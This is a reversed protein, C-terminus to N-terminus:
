RKLIFVPQRLIGERTWEQFAVECVLKPRLWTTSKQGPPISPFPCKQTILPQMLKYLTELAQQDFGAGVNGAYTLVNNEDYVGIVLSGFYTRRGKPNTYGCIVFEQRQIAKIKLWNRSRISVYPSNKDKAIMGELQQKQIEKFFAVGHEEVHDSYVLHPLTKKSLINRLLEKRDKLPEKRLDKNKYFLLDFVCYRLTTSSSGELLYNQLMQFNSKGEQDFVVIEGDMVLDNKLSKLEKVIIPFLQNFSNFNRSYLAVENKRIEAIARYGDWKLEFLWDPDNFPEKILTSLMPKIFRPFTENAMSNKPRVDQDAFVRASM